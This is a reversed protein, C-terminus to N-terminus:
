IISKKNTYVERYNIKKSTRKTRIKRTFFIRIFVILIVHYVILGIIWFWVPNPLVYVGFYAFFIFIMSMKELFSINQYQDAFLLITSNWSIFFLLIITIVLALSNAILKSSITFNRYILINTLFSVGFVILLGLVLVFNITSYHYNQYGTRLSDKLVDGWVIESLIFVILSFIASMGSILAAAKWEIKRRVM